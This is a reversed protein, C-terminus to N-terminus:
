QYIMMAYTRFPMADFRQSIRLSSNSEYQLAHIAESYGKQKARQHANAVLLTGLGTTRHSPSTALTKVILVAPDMDPICFLFGVLIEAKFALLVFEPDIRDKASLYSHIFAQRPLPTYLFNNSFAALSLEFIQHLDEEFHDMDIQRIDIGQKKVLNEVRDFSPQEATLDIASSSYRSLIKFGASAFTDHLSLPEIPEMLFPPRDNSDIILRHKLWTNGNMPGLIPRAPHEARILQICKKLFAVAAMGDLLCAGLAISYAGDFPPTNELWVGIRLQDQILIFSAGQSFIIQQDSSLDSTPSIIDM